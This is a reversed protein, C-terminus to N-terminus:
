TASTIGWIVGFALYQLAIAVGKLMFITLIDTLRGRDYHIKGKGKELKQLLVM